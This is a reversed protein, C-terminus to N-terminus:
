IKTWNEDDETQSSQRKIINDNIPRIDTLDYIDDSIISLKGKEIIYKKRPNVEIIEGAVIIYTSSKKITIVTKGSIKNKTTTIVSNAIRKGVHTGVTTGVAAGAWACAPMFSYAIVKYSIWGVIEM